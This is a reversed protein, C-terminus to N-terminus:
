YYKFTGFYQWSIYVLTQNQTPAQTVKKFGSNKSSPWFQSLGKTEQIHIEYYNVLLRPNKESIYIKDFHIFHEHSPAKATKQWALFTKQKSLFNHWPLSDEVPSEGSHIDSMQFNRFIPWRFKSIVSVLLHQM